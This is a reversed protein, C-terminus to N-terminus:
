DQCPKKGGQADLLFCGAALVVPVLAPLRLEWRSLILGQARAAAPHSHIEGHCYGCLALLNSPCDNRGASRAKRHHAHM